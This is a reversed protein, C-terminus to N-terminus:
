PLRISTANTKLNLGLTNYTSVSYHTTNELEINFDGYWAVLYEINSDEIFAWSYDRLQLYYIGTNWTEIASDGEIYVVDLQTDRAELKGDTVSIMPPNFMTTNIMDVDYPIQGTKVLQSQTFWEHNGTISQNIQVRSNEYVFFVREVVCDKLQVVNRSQTGFDGIHSRTVSASPTKDM